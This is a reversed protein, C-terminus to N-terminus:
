AQTLMPCSSRLEPSFLDLLPRFCAVVPASSNTRAWDGAHTLPNTPLPKLHRSLPVSPHFWGASASAELVDMYALNASLMTTNRPSPPPCLSCFMTCPTPTLM